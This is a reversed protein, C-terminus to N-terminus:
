IPFGPSQHSPPHSLLHGPVGHDLAVVMTVRMQERVSLSCIPIGIIQQLAQCHSWVSHPGTHVHSAISIHPVAQITFARKVLM